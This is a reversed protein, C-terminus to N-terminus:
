VAIRLSVTMAEVALLPNVNGEIATRAALVADLRRLTAEPRSAEAIRILEPRIEENILAVDAGIQVILVDRYFSLVDQLALDLADRKVRKSRAKQRDGLDRMIRQGGAPMRTGRPDGSLAIRMATREPDDLSKSLSQADEDASDVLDAAAALCDALNRLRGHVALAEARRLRTQEDLALRRARGIHAQAARAAFAAMAPDIQDREVLYRAVDVVRPTRLTILRCRSRVTPVLDDPSPACLLWVTRAAPEEIAKLLANAASETLRDADELVIVHWRGNNPALQADRVLARTDDVGYSLGTPRIVEVDAHTDTLVTHCSHCEGCGGDPCQLAAALARAATSRGSGPPGTLLWAHTMGVATGGTVVSQAARVAAQLEDIVAEQGILEDFVSM